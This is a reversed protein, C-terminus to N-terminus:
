LADGLAGPPLMLCNWDRPLKEAKIVCSLGSTKGTKTETEETQLIM